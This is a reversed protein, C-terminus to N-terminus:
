KCTWKANDSTDSELKKIFEEKSMGIIEVKDEEDSSNLSAYAAYNSITLTKGDIKIDVNPVDQGEEAMSQAIGIAFQFMAYAQSAEESSGFTLSMSADKIKDNDDLEAIVEGTYKKGNQEATATCKLQNKSGCGTLLLLSLVGAIVGLYTKKM